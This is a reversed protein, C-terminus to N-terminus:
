LDCCDSAYGDVAARRTGDVSHGLFYVVWSITIVEDFKLIREGDFLPSFQLCFGYLIDLIV